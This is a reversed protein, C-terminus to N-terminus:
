CISAPLVPPAREAMHRVCFRQVAFLTGGDRRAHLLAASATRAFLSRRAIGVLLACRHAASRTFRAAALTCVYALTAHALLSFWVPGGFWATDFRVSGGYAVREVAEMVFLACLQLAFVCATDALPSLPRVHRPERTHRLPQACRMVVAIVLLCAGAVLAPIVSLHNDDAYGRGLAGSNAITEVLADGVAAAVIATAPLLPLRSTSSRRLMARTHYCLLPGFM